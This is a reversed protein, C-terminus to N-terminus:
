KWTQYLVLKSVARWDTEEDWLMLLSLTATMSRVASLSLSSSVTSRVEGTPFLGLLLFRLRFLLFTGSSLSTMIIDGAGWRGCGSGGRVGGWVCGWWVGEEESDGVPILQGIQMSELLSNVSDPRVSTAVLHPWKNQSAQMCCDMLSFWLHGM